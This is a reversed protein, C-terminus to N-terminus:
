IFLKPRKSLILFYKKQYCLNKVNSSALRTNKTKSDYPLIM